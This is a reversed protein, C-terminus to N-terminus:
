KLFELSNLIVQYASQYGLNNKSIVYFRRKDEIFLFAKSNTTAIQYAKYNKFLVPEGETLYGSRLGILNLFNNLNSAPSDLYTITVYNYEDNNAQGRMNKPILGIFSGWGSPNEFKSLDSYETTDLFKDNLDWNDPYLFSVGYVVSTYRKLKAKLPPYYDGERLSSLTSTPIYIYPPTSTPLKSNPIYPNPKLNPDIFINQDSNTAVITNSAVKISKRFIALIGLGVAVVLIIIFFLVINNKKMYKM